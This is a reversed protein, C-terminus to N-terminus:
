NFYNFKVIGTIVNFYNNKQTLITKTNVYVSWDRVRPENTITFTSLTLESYKQVLLASM